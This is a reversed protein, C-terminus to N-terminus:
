CDIIKLGFYSESAFLYFNLGFCISFILVFVMHLSVQMFVNFFHFTAFWLDCFINQFRLDHFTIQFSMVQSQIGFVLYKLGHEGM